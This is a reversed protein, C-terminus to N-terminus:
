LTDSKLDLYDAMINQVDQTSALQKELSEVKKQLETVQKLLLDLTEGVDHFLLVESPSPIKVRGTFKIEECHLVRKSPPNLSPSPNYRPDFAMSNTYM